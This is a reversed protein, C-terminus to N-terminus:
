DLKIGADKIVKAWRAYDRRILTAFEAPTGPAAVSGLSAFRDRIDKRELVRVLETNMRTIVTQPSGAPALLGYWSSAEYDRVGAEALTPLDPTLASRKSTSVALARVRGGKLQPAAVPMDCFMLDM